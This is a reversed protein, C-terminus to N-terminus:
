GRRSFCSMPMTNIDEGSRQSRPNERWRRHTEQCRGLRAKGPKWEPNPEVREGCAERGEREGLPLNGLRSTRRERPKGNVDLTLPTWRAFVHTSKRFASRSGKSRGCVRGLDRYQKSSVM